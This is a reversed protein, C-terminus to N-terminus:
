PDMHCILLDPNMVKFVNTFQEIDGSKFEEKGRLTLYIKENTIDEDNLNLKLRVQKLNLIIEIVDEVVGLITTFEHDVGGIRIASIAFVKSHTLFFEKLSNGITQGFGPELPKFEFIGDFDTAKQLIIKEPKQFNLISM